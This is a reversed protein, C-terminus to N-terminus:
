RGLSYYYVPTLPVTYVPQITSYGPQYFIPPVYVVPIRMPRRRAIEAIQRTEAAAPLRGDQAPQEGRVRKGAASAERSARRASSEDM